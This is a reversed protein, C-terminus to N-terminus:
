IKILKMTMNLKTNNIINRFDKVFEKYQIDIKEDRDIKNVANQLKVNKKIKLITFRLILIIIM